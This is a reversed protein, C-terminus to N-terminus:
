DTTVTTDNDDDDSSTSDTTVTSASASGSAAAATADDSTKDSDDSSTSEEQDIAEKAKVLENMRAVITNYAKLTDESIFSQQYSNMGNLLQEAAMVKDADQYTLQGIKPMQSVMNTFTNAALVALYYTDNQVTQIDSVKYLKDNISIMQEGDVETIYDIVGSDETSDNAVTVYKGVLTKAELGDVNDQVAQLTEVQTFTAMEKVYESNDTPQLPDQYKMETVLLKLFMDKTDDTQKEKKETAKETVADPVKGNVIEQVLAM